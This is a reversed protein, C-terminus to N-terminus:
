SGLKTLCKDCTVEDAVASASIGHPSRAGCAAKYAHDYLYITQGQWERVQRAEATPSYHVKM